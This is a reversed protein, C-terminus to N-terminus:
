RGSPCIAASVGELRVLIRYDRGDNSALFDEVARFGLSEVVRLARANFTAVTVRFAAPAFRQRGFELGTSIALRGLGKGTLGPRLGGGTDLASKDYKGGPVQGDDGFSRFGVLDDVDVLAFFGSEANALFAPDASTMDYCDYPPEYRWTGIEAAYGATM